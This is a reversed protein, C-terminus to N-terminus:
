SALPAEAMTESRADIRSSAEKSHAIVYAFMLVALFMAGFGVLALAYALSNASHPLWDSLSGVLIPGLGTGTLAAIVAQVALVQAKVARPASLLLPLSSLALVSSTCFLTLALLALKLRYDPVVPSLIAPVAAVIACWRMYSFIRILVGDHRRAVVWGASLTGIVGATLFIPGFLVGAQKASFGNVRMLLAPVWAVTANLLLAMMAMATMFVPFIRTDGRMFAKVEDYSQTVGLRLNHKRPEAILLLAAAALIGPAGILIFVLRWPELPHTSGPLQLVHSQAWAYLAGGLTLAIGGGLFPSLMFFSNARALHQPQNTDAMLTMAAPPLGAESSAMCIRAAMLQWFSAAVSMAMTMLSWLTVCASMIRPRHGHDSLRGLPISALVYFVSFSLGQLLGIKTDSLGLSKEIPDVLLGLLHRDTYSLTFCVTLLVTVLHVRPIKM